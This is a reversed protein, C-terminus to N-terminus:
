RTYRVTIRYYGTGPTAQQSYVSLQLSGGSSFLVNSNFTISGSALRIAGLSYQIVPGSSYQVGAVNGFSAVIKKPVLPDSSVVLNFSNSTNAALTVNNDVFTREYIASGDYDTGIRKETTSTQWDVKNSPVTAATVAYVMGSTITTTGSAVLVYGLIAYYATAGSAGDATIASRITDDDPYTPTSAATGTVKIIGCCEPNDQTAAGTPPKDVYVVIADYRSNSAPASDLTVNIPSGSINNITTKNGNTDEAIAVDRNTGDGGCAVTMGSSPVIGWGGLVGRGQFTALVDNFANVSTRGGFAGNTGVANNPNTM